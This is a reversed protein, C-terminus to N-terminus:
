KSADFNRGTAFLEKQIDGNTVMIDDLKKALKEDIESEHDKTFQLWEQKFTLLDQYSSLM